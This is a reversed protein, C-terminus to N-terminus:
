AAISVAQHEIVPPLANDNADAWETRRTLQGNFFLLPLKVLLLESHIMSDVAHELWTPDRKANAQLWKDYPAWHSPEDVEIVRFIKMLLRDRQIIRNKLLTLVQRHGRKETLSVVRCLRAFLLDDGIMREPELEDIRSKFMIEIFRDIHGCARDIEFPMTGRREFWRRFMMYHKQEDARHKEIEDILVLDDPWRSRVARLV